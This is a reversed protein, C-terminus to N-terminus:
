VDLLAGEVDHIDFGDKKFAIAARAAARQAEAAETADTRAAMAARIRAADMAKVTRTNASTLDIELEADGVVKRAGRTAM